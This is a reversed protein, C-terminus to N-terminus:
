NVVDGLERGGEEHDGLDRINEGTDSLVDVEKLGVEGGVETLVM